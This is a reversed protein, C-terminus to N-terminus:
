GYKLIGSHVEGYEKGVVLEKGAYSAYLKYGSVVKIKLDLSIGTDHIGSVLGRFSGCDDEWTVQDGQKFKKWPEPVTFSESRINDMVGVTGLM